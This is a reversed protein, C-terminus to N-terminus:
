EISESVLSAGSGRVCAGSRGSAVVACRMCVLAGCFHARYAESRRSAISPQSGSVDPVQVRRRQTRATTRECTAQLEFWRHQGDLPLFLLLCSPPVRPSRKALGVSASLSVFFLSCPSVCRVVSAPLRWGQGGGEGNGTGKRNHTHPTRQTTSHRGTRLATPTVPAHPDGRLSGLAVPLARLARWIRGACVRLCAIRDM